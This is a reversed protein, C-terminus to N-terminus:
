PHFLGMIEVISAVNVPFLDIELFFFSLSFDFFLLYTMFARTPERPHHMEMPKEIKTRWDYIKKRLLNRLSQKSKSLRLHRYKGRM